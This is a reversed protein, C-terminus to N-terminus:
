GRFQPLQKIAAAVNAPAVVDLQAATVVTVPTPTTMGTGRRRTGTVTVEQPLQNGETTTSTAQAAEEAAAPLGYGLAAVGIFSTLLGNRHRLKVQDGKM